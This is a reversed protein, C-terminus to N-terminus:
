KSGHLKGELDAYFYQSPSYLSYTLTAFIKYTTSMQPVRHTISIVECLASSSSQPVGLTVTHSNTRGNVCMPPLSTLTVFFEHICGVKRIINPIVLLQVVTINHVKKFRFTYSDHASPNLFYKDSVYGKKKESTFEFMCHGLGSVLLVLQPFFSCIALM